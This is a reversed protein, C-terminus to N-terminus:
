VYKYGGFFKKKYHSLSKLIHQKNSDYKINYLTENLLNMAREMDPFLGKYPRSYKDLLAMEFTSGIRYIESLTIMVEAYIKEEYESKDKKAYEKDAEVAKMYSFALDYERKPPIVPMKRYCLAILANKRTSHVGRDLVGVAKSMDVGDYYCLGTYYSTEEAISYIASSIEKHFSAYYTISDLKQCEIFASEYYILAHELNGTEFHEKAIKASHKISSLRREAESKEIKVFIDPEFYYKSDM